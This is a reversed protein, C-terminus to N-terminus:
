GVHGAVVGSRRALDPLSSTGTRRMLALAVGAAAEADCESSHHSDLPVGLESTVIPLTNHRLGLLRRSIQLTCYYDFTPPRRRIATGAQRIASMDFGANHCVVLRGELYGSLEDWSDRLSACNRVRAETIGHIRVNIGDFHAMSNPPKVLRHATFVIRGDEVVAVGFACISGRNSNATEFDVAVFSEGM